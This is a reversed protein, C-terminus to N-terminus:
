WRWYQLNDLGKEARAKLNPDDVARTFIATLQRHGDELCRARMACLTSDPPIDGDGQPMYDSIRLLTDMARDGLTNSQLKKELLSITYAMLPWNQGAGVLAGDPSSLGPWEKGLQAVLIEVGETGMQQLAISAEM